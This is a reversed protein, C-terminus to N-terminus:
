SSVNMRRSVGISVLGLALLALVSPEPVSEVANISWEVKSFQTFFNVERSNSWAVELYGDFLTVQNFWKQPDIAFSATLIADDESVTSAAYSLLMGAEDAWLTYWNNRASFISFGNLYFTIYELEPWAEEESYDGRATLNVTISEYLPGVGASLQGSSYSQGAVTVATSDSAIIVANAPGVMALFMLVAIINKMINGIIKTLRLLICYANMTGARM